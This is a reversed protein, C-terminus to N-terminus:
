SGSHHLIRQRPKDNWDNRLIVSRKMTRAAGRAATSTLQFHAVQESRPGGSRCSEPGSATRGFSQELRFLEVGEVLHGGEHDRNFFRTAWDAQEELHVFEGGCDVNGPHM